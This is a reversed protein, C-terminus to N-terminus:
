QHGERRRGRLEGITQELLGLLEDQDEDALGDFEDSLLRTIQFYLRSSPTRAGIVVSAKRATRTRTAPLLEDIDRRKLDPTIRGDRLAAKLKSQDAKTLEYLTRWSPPLTPGHASNSLVPHNAVAMLREGTGQGFPVLHDSFLRGFEGHSLDKKARVLLRGVEIISEVTKGLQVTIRDAWQETRDRKLVM